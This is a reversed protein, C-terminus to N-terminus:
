LLTLEESSLSVSSSIHFSVVTAFCTFIVEKLRNKIVRSLLILKKLLVLM